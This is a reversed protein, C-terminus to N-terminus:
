DLERLATEVSAAVEDLPRTMREDMFFNTYRWADQLTVHAAVIRLAPHASAMRQAAEKTREDGVYGEAALRDFLEQYRAQPEPADFSVISFERSADTGAVYVTGQDDSFYLFGPSAGSWLGAGFLRQRDRWLQLITEGDSEEGGSRVAVGALSPAPVTMPLGGKPESEALYSLQSLDPGVLRLLYFSSNLYGQRNDADTMHLAAGVIPDKPDANRLVAPDSYESNLIRIMASLNQSTLPFNSSQLLDAVVVGIRCAWGNRDRRVIGSEGSDARVQSIGDLITYLSSLANNDRAAAVRIWTAAEVEGQEGTSMQAMCASEYEDFWVRQLSPDDQAAAAVASLMFVINALRSARFM